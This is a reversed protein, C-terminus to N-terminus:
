PRVAYDPRSRYWGCAMIRGIELDGAHFSRAVRYGCVIWAFCEGFTFLAVYPAGPSM